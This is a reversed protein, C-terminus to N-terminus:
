GQGEGLGRAAARHWVACHQHRGLGSRGAGRGRQHLASIGGEADLHAEKAHKEVLKLDECIYIPLFALGYGIGVKIQDQALAPTLAVSFALLVVCFDCRGGCGSRETHAM